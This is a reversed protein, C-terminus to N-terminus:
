KAAVDLQIANLIEGTEDNQVFVVVKLGSKDMAPTNDAYTISQSKAYTESYKTVEAQVAALDISLTKATKGDKLESGAVGGAFHRVVHHHFRLANGGVYHISDETLVVKLKLGKAEKVGDATVNVTLSDGNRSVSGTIAVDSKEAFGSTIVKSYEKFKGESNDMGGGGGAAIKGNFLTTPTGRVQGPNKEGYYGFRAVSADNTLPDPGPIHMHYQLLIVDKHDYAKSLADFAVDAAVCPPCQAGTFLEMLVARGEGQKRGEQKAVKFPPVTALYEKDLATEIKTIKDTVMKLAEAKGAGKYVKAATKLLKSQSALPDKDSSKALVKEFSPLVIEAYTKDTALTETVSLTATEALRPGFGSAEGEVMAIWATVDKADAKTRIATQILNQAAMVAYPSKKEAAIVAKWAAPAEKDAKEQAENAEKLLKAKEDVDKAQRAKFKLQAAANAIKLANTYSEPAKPMSAQFSEDIKDADTATFFGRSILKDDGFEGRFSKGDPQIKGSFALPRTGIKLKVSAVDGKLDFSVLEFPANPASAIKTATAKGDKTEVKLIFIPQEGIIGFGYGLRWNGDKFAPPADAAGAVSCVLLFAGLLAGRRLM